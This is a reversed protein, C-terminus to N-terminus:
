IPFLKLMLSLFHILQRHHGEPFNGSSIIAAIGEGYRRLAEPTSLRIKRRLSLLEALEEGQRREAATLKRSPSRIELFDKQCLFSTAIRRVTDNSVRIGNYEMVRSVGDDSFFVSAALILASLTNTRVQSPEAFPLREMFVQRSCASNTCNYKYATIHLCTYKRHVPMAQIMRHYTAHFQSSIHDCPPCAATHCLSKAYIHIEKQTEEYALIQCPFYPSYYSPTPSFAPM